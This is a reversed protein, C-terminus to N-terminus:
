RNNTNALSQSCRTQTYSRACSIFQAHAFTNLRDSIRIAFMWEDSQHVWTCNVLEDITRHRTSTIVNKRIEKSYLKLIVKLRHCVAPHYPFNTFLFFSSFLISIFKKTKSTFKNFNFYKTCCIDSEFLTLCYPWMCTIQIQMHRKNQEWRGFSTFITLTFDSISSCLIHLLLFPFFSFLADWFYWRQLRECRKKQWEKEHSRLYITKM